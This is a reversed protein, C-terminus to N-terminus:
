SVHYSEIKATRLSRVEYESSLHFLSAVYPDQTLLYGEESKTAAM